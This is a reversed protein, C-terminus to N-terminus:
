ASPRVTMLMRYEDLKVLASRATDFLGLEIEVGGLIALRWQTGLRSIVAVHGGELNVRYESVVGDRSCRGIRLQPTTTAGLM